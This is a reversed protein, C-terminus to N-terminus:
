RFSLTEPISTDFNLVTCSRCCKQCTAQGTNTRSRISPPAHSHLYHDHSNHTTFQSNHTKKHDPKSSNISPFNKRWCNDMSSAILDPAPWNEKKFPIFLTPSFPNPLNWIM